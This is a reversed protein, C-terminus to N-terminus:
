SKLVSLILTNNINSKKVLLINNNNDKGIRKNKRHFICYIILNKSIFKSLKKTTTCITTSSIFENSYM